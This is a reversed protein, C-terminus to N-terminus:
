LINQYLAYQAYIGEPLLVSTNVNATRTFLQPSYNNVVPTHRGGEDKKM